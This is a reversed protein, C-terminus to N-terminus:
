TKEQPHLSLSSEERSAIKGQKKGVAGHLRIYDDAPGLMPLTVAHFKHGQRRLILFAQIGIEHPQVLPCGRSGAM